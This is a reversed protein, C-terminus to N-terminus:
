TLSYTTLLTLSYTLSHTLVELVRRYIRNWGYTQAAIVANYLTANKLILSPVFFLPNVM